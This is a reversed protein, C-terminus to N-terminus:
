ARLLRLGLLVSLLSLPLQPLRHMVSIYRGTSVM